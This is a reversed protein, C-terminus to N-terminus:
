VPAAAKSGLGGPHRRWGNVKNLVVNLEYFAFSCFLLSVGRGLVPAAAAVKQRGRQAQIFPLFAPLRIHTHATM